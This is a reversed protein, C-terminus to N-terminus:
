GCDPKRWGGRLEGLDAFLRYKRFLGDKALKRRARAIYERWKRDLTAARMYPLLSLHTLDPLDGKAVRAGIDCRFEQFTEQLLRWGPCIAPDAYVWRAFADVDSVHLGSSELQDSILELLVGKSARKRGLVARNQTITKAIIQRFQDDFDVGAGALLWSRM